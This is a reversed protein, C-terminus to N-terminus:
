SHEPVLVLKGVSAGTEMLEHARAADALPMTTAPTAPLRGEATLAIAREMLRRRLAPDKDLTHISYVRIGLSKGLRSRLQGFLDADPMPGGLASFSVVTGLPALMDLSRVLDPGAMAFVADVGVGDTLALLDEVLSDSTRLLVDNIGRAHLHARKDESSVISIARIGDTKALEVIASGVGGAAGFVAVSRPACIGSSYLLAGALQYNPLSVAAAFPVSQPLPFAADAPICIADAYCGGRFPLERSSVLVHQGVRVGNVGAGTADVVGAMENGPIAPLPPMWDYVGRRIRMDASSIGIARAFVRIQGPGPEPLPHLVYELVEPGGPIKMEVVHMSMM